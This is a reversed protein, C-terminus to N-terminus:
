GQHWMHRPNFDPNRSKYQALHPLGLNYQPAWLTPIPISIPILYTNLTKTDAFCMVAFTTSPFLPLSTALADLTSCASLLANWHPFPQSALDAADTPSTNAIRSFVSAGSTPTPPPTWKFTSFSISLFLTSLPSLTHVTTLAKLFLPTLTKTV